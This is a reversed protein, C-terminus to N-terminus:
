MNELIVRVIDIMNEGVVIFIQKVKVIDILIEDVVIVM